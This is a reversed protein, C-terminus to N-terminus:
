IGAAKDLREIPMLKNWAEKFRKLKEDSIQGKIVLTGRPDDLVSVSNLLKEMKEYATGVIEYMKCVPCLRADPGQTLGRAIFCSIANNLGDKYGGFCEISGTDALLDTMISKIKNEM